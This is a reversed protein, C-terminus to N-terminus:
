DFGMYAWLSDLKTHLWMPDSRTQHIEAQPEATSEGQDAQGADDHQTSRSMQQQASSSEDQQISATATEPQLTSSAEAAVTVLEDLLIQSIFSEDPYEEASSPEVTPPMAPPTFWTGAILEKLTHRSIKLSEPDRLISSVDRDSLTSGGAPNGPVFELIMKEPNWVVDKYTWVQRLPEYRGITGDAKKYLWQRADRIDPYDFFLAEGRNVREAYEGSRLWDALLRIKANREEPSGKGPPIAEWNLLVDLVDPRLSARDISTPPKSAQM